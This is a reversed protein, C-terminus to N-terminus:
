TREPSPKRVRDASSIRVLILAAGAWLMGTTLWAMLSAGPALPNTAGPVASPVIVATNNIAAHMLMVLFLSGNTRAWLWAMAVSLATVSLLYPLFPQGTSDTAPIYFLPLHWCAWIVGLLVSAPALGMGAAMRPLAYGRWGIEEGAQFATSFLIAAPLLWWSLPAFAPWEGDIMRFAAAAALKAAAMYTVAFVYWRVPVSSAFLPTLLGRVGPGGGARATLGMAVLGPVFTGPLFAIWRMERLSVSEPIAAAAAWLTWSVLFTLGFFTIPPVPRPHSM